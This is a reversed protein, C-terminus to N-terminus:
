EVPITQKTNVEAPLREVSKEGLVVFLSSCLNFHFFPNSKLKIELTSQLFLPTLHFFNCGTLQLALSTQPTLLFIGAKICFPITM